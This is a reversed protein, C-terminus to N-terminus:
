QNGRNSSNPRAIREMHKNCESHQNRLNNGGGAQHSPTLIFSSFSVHVNCLARLTAPFDSKFGDAPLAFAALPENIHLSPEIRVFLLQEHRRHCVGAADPGHVIM